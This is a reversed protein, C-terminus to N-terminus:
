RYFCMKLMLNLFFYWGVLGLLKIRTTHTFFIKNLSVFNMKNNKISWFSISKLERSIKFLLNKKKSLLLLNEHSRTWHGKCPSKVWWEDGAGQTVELIFSFIVIMMGSNNKKYKDRRWTICLHVVISRMTWQSYIVIITSKSFYCYCYYYPSPSYYDFYLVLQVRKHMGDM